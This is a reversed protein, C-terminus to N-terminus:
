VATRRVRGPRPWLRLRVVGLVADKRVPARRAGPAHANDSALLWAPAGSFHRDEQEVRKVALVGDPFRAVVVHGPLVPAGYRVLLRDGPALTPTMSAGRVKALGWRAGHGM